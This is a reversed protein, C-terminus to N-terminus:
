FQPLRIALDRVTRQPNNRKREMVESIRALSQINEWPASGDNYFYYRYEFDISLAEGSDDVIPDGYFDIPIYERNHLVESGDPLVYVCYPLCERIVKMRESTSRPLVLGTIEEAKKQSVVRNYM